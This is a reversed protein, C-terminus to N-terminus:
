SIIAEDANKLAEQLHTDADDKALRSLFPSKGELSIFDRMGTRSHHSMVSVSLIQALSRSLKGNNLRNWILQAGATAHDITGRKAEAAVRVEEGLIGSVASIYDKFDQSYKGLDHCLGLLRGCLPLGVAAGFRESLAATEALHLGVSQILGDSQRRHAIFNSTM